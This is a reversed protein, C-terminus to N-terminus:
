LAARMGVKTLADRVAQRRADPTMRALVPGRQPDVMMRAELAEVCRRHARWTAGTEVNLAGATSERCVICARREAM